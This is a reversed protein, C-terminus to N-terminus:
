AWRLLRAGVIIGFFIASMLMAIVRRGYYRYTATILTGCLPCRGNTDKM